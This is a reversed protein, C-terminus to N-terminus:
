MIPVGNYYMKMRFKFKASNTSNHHIGGSVGHIPTDAIATYSGTYIGHSMLVNLKQDGGMTNIFMSSANRIGVWVTKGGQTTTSYSVSLPEVSWSLTDGAKLTFYFPANAVNSASSSDATNVLIDSIYANIDSGVGSILEIEVTDGGTVTFVNPKVTFNSTGNRFPFFQGGATAMLRRSGM